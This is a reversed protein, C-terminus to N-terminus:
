FQNVLSSIMMVVVVSRGYFISCYLVRIPSCFCAIVIRVEEPRLPKQFVVHPFEQESEDDSDQVGFMM